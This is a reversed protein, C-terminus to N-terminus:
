YCQACASFQKVPGSAHKSKSAFIHWLIWCFFLEALFFFWRLRSVTKKLSFFFKKQSESSIMVVFLSQQPFNKETSYLDRRSRRSIKNLRSKSEVERLTKFPFSFRIISLNAGCSNSSHCTATQGSWITVCCSIAASIGFSFHRM